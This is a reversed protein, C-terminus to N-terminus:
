LSNFCVYVNYLLLYPNKVNDEKITNTHVYHELRVTFLMNKATQCTLHKELQNLLQCLIKSSLCRILHDLCAQRLDPVDFYEATCALGVVNSPQITCSGTMFYCLLERFVDEEVNDVLYQLPPISLCTHTCPDCQIETLVHV